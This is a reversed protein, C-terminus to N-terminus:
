DKIRPAAQHCIISGDHTTPRGANHWMWRRFNSNKATLWFHTPEAGNRAITLIFLIRCCIINFNSHNYNCFDDYRSASSISKQDVPTMSMGTSGISEYDYKLFTTAIISIILLKTTILINEDNFDRRIEADDRVWKENETKTAMTTM